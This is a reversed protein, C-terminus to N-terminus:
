CCRSCSAVNYDFSDQMDGVVAVPRQYGVAVDISLAVFVDVFVPAVPGAVCRPQPQPERWWQLSGINTHIDMWLWLRSAPTADEADAM